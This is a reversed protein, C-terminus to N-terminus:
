ASRRRAGSSVRTGIDRAAALLAPRIKALVKDPLRESPGLVSLAALIRGDAGFVPASMSAVGPSREGRSEAYGRRRVKQLERELDGRDTITASTFAVLDLHDLIDERELADSFALLVKGMSGTHIPNEMGLRATYRIPQPSPVQAACIRRPGARVYLAVTEKTAAGLRALVPAAIVDLGGGGRAVADLIGFCGPGLMYADTTPDHVVLDGSGLSALLRRVMVASLGTSRSIDAITRRGHELAFLVDLARDVSRVEGDRPPTRRHPPAARRRTRGAARPRQAKM